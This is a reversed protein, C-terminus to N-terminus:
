RYSVLKNFLWEHIRVGVNTSKNQGRHIAIATYGTDAYYRYVPAGSQGGSTDLNKYYLMRWKDDSSIASTHKFMYPNDFYNVGRVEGPCGAVTVNGTYAGAQYKLGLWGVKNGINSNLQIVGWDDTVDRNKVWNGGAELKTSGASYPIGDKGERAPYVMIKEAWGGMSSDYVCHGATAVASPGLMFGTGMSQGKPFKISLHVTNRHEGYNIPHEVKIRNDTGIVVRPEININQPEQSDHYPNYEPSSLEVTESRTKPLFEKGDDFTVEGTELDKMYSGSIQTYSDVMKEEYASVPLSNVVFLVVLLLEFALLWKKKSRYKM